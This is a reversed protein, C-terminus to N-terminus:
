IRGELDIDEHENQYIEFLNETKVKDALFLSLKRIDGYYIKSDALSSSTTSGAMEISRLSMVERLNISKHSKSTPQQNTDSSTYCVMDLLYSSTSSYLMPKFPSIIFRGIDSDERKGEEIPDTQPSQDGVKERLYVKLLSTRYVGIDLYKDLVLIHLPIPQNEM